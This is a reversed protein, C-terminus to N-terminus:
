KVDSKWVFMTIEPRTQRSTLIADLVTILGIIFRRNEIKCVHKQLIRGEKICSNCFICIINLNADETFNASFLASTEVHELIM